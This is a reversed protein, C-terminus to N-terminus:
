ERMQAPETHIKNTEADKVASLLPTKWNQWSYSRKDEKSQEYVWEADETGEAESM